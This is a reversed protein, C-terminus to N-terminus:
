GRTNSVDRLSAGIDPIEPKTINLFISKLLDLISDFTYHNSTIILKGVGILYINLCGYLALYTTYRYFPRLM